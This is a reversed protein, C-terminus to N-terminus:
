RKADTQRKAEFPRQQTGEAPTISLISAPKQVIFRHWIGRPVVCANNPRITITRETDGALVALDIAGALLYILEEGQPHMEWNASDRVQASVWVLRGDALEPRTPLKAWFDNGAEVQVAGGGDKLQVYTAGLEFVIKTREAM